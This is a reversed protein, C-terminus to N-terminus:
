IPIDHSAGEHTQRVRKDYIQTTRIHRHGLLDQVKTIDVGSSLLATAATARLSHPSYICKRLKTGNPLIEERIAGPLASLYRLLIRYIGLPNVGKEGLNQSRSNIQARFLPGSTLSAATIYEQIAQAAVAHLGITRRREGKEKLRMTGGNEDQHFDSVLLKSGAALRAGSYVFFKLIARDRAALASDGTPMSILQRAKSITLAKTEEVPDSTERPLFQSHAPNPVVIPLRTEAASAGLYKYFGSLSSIRRNITKPAADKSILWDRFGQVTQVSVQLLRASDNPWRYGLFEQFFCMVDQHYARRTHPSSRRTLWTEYIAPISFVFQRVQSEVAATQHGHLIPPLEAHTIQVAKEQTM